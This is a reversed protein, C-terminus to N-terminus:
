ASYLLDPSPRVVERSQTTVRPAHYVTNITHKRSRALSMMEYYPYVAVTILHLATTLVITAGIWPLAKKM